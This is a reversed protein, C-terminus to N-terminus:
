RAALYTTINPGIEESYIGALGSAHDAIQNVVVSYVLYVSAIGHTKTENPLNAILQTCRIAYNVNRM